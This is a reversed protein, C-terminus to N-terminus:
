VSVTAQPRPPRRRWERRAMAGFLLALALLGVAILWELSGDHHDPDVGFTLEIWDRWVLTLLAFVASTIAYASEAVFIAGPRETM